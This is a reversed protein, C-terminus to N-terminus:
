FNCWLTEVERGKTKGGSAHNAVDFTYRSWSALARTYLTSPYTSLMVKGKCQRLEDLLECHDQESMEHRCVKRAIRTGPPYPPDCYHLTDPGDERRILDVALMNELVVSRLRAHVDALGDVASLWESANGNMGRRTRNRTLPAFGKM